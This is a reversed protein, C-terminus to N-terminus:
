ENGDETERRGDFYVKKAQDLHRQEHAVIIDLAKDLSYVILKNAPSHIISGKEVFPEMDVIWTKLKEQHDQFRQLITDDGDAVKPEWLPFTKHKKKGGDSVSKYIMEGFMNTFFGFRSIFAPRFSGNKLQAFIPFYTENITILHQLNEGISWTKPNPKFHIKHTPLEIFAAIAEQTVQDISETWKNTNPNM